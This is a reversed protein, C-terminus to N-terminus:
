AVGGARGRVPPVGRGGRRRQVGAAARPVPPPRLLLRVDHLAGPVGGDGFAARAADRCCRPRVRRRRRWVDRVGRRPRGRLRPARPRRVRRRLARVQLGGQLPGAPATGSPPTCRCPSPRSSRAWPSRGCWRGSQRTTSTSDAPHVAVPLPNNLKLLTPKQFDISGWGKQNSINTALAYLLLLLHDSLESTQM